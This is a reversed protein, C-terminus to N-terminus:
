RWSGTWQAYAALDPPVAGRVECIHGAFANARALTTAMDWGRLLGALVVASFADGAGVTDVLRIPRTSHGQAICRGEGDFALAGEAGCTVLLMELPLRQLLPRVSDPTPPGEVAPVGLWDCLMALEEDNVKLVDALGIAQLAVERAVHGERWNLDLYIPGPHARMLAWAAARSVPSRLALTGAYLWSSADLVPAASRVPAEDIFDWACDTRISFHHGGDPGMRVDVVGTPHQSTVQVGERQMAYRDFEAMVLKAHADTGVASLMLPAHGLAALHRAVNFPAGGVVAGSEFQDVLMEGFVAMRTM